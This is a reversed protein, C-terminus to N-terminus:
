MEPEPALDFEGSELARVNRDRAAAIREFSGDIEQELRRREDMDRTYRAPLGVFEAKILAAMEMVVQKADEVPILERLREAIRLEIERTRALTAANAAAAKTSKSKLDDYYAIIGRVLKGVAYQNRGDMEVFGGDVLADVWQPSRGTLAAAQPRGLVMEAINDPARAAPAQRGKTAV